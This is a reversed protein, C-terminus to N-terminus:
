GSYLLHELYHTKNTKQSFQPSWLNRKLNVSRYNDGFVIPKADLLEFIM